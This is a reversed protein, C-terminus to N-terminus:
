ADLDADDSVKARIPVWFEAECPTPLICCPKDMFNFVEALLRCQGVTRFLGQIGAHPDRACVLLIVPFVLRRAELEIRECYSLILHYSLKSRVMISDHISMGHCVLPGSSRKEGIASM